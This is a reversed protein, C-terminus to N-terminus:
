WTEHLGNCEKCGIINSAVEHLILSHKKFVMALFRGNGINDWNMVSNVSNSLPELLVIGADLYVGGYAYLILLSMLNKHFSITPPPLLIKTGALRLHTEIQSSSLFNRVHFKDFGHLMEMWNLRQIKLEYGVDCFLRSEDLLLYNSHVIIQANPHHFFVAEIVRTLILDFKVYTSETIIFHFLRQSPFTDFNSRLPTLPFIGFLRASEIYRFHVKKLYYYFSARRRDIKAEGPNSSPNRFDFPEKQHSLGADYQHFLEIVGETRMKGGGGPLWPSNVWLVPVGQAAAPLAAHIRSTVVVKASKAYLQVLYFAREFRKTRNRCGGHEASVYVVSPDNRIAPPLHEKRVDVVVIHSRTHNKKRHGFDLTLTMCLSFYADIGMKEFERLSYLDRAGVPGVEMNYKLLWQINDKMTKILEGETHFSVMLMRALPGPPWKTGKAGYWANGILWGDAHPLGEDRDVFGSLYPMFQLGVFDQVEDGSNCAVGGTNKIRADFSYTLYRESLIVPQLPMFPPTISCIQRSYDAPIKWVQGGLILNSFMLLTGHDVCFYRPEGVIRVCIPMGYNEKQLISLMAISQMHHPFSEMCAIKHYMHNKLFAAYPTGATLERM